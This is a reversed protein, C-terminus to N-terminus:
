LESSASRILQSDGRFLVELFTSRCRFTDGNDASARLWALVEGSSEYGFAAAGAVVCLVSDLGYGVAAADPLVLQLRAPRRRPGQPVLTCCPAQSLGRRSLEASDGLGSWKIMLRYYLIM